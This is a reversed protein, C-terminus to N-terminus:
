SKEDEKKVPASNDIKISAGNRLTRLVRFSGTIIEEGSQLGNLVEIDTAGTIGTEVKRFEAKKNRVVFVGQIDPENKKAQNADAPRRKNKVDQLESEKRM